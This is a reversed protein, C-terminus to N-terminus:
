KTTLFFRLPQKELLTLKFEEIKEGRAAAVDHFRKIDV